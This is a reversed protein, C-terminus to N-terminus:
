DNLVEQILEVSYHLTSLDLNIPFDAHQTRDEPFKLLTFSEGYGNRLISYGRMTPKLSCRNTM